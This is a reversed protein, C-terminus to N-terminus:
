SPSDSRILAAMADVESSQENLVHKALSHIYPNGSPGDLLSRSMTIAGRHHEIMLRLYVNPAADRSAHDLETLQAPSLMGHAPGGASPSPENWASLWDTTEDIERQQDHIIYDAILRVREPVGGKALLTRSMAVAQEHHDVMMQAYHVDIGSPTTETQAAAAQPAPHDGLRLVFVTAAALALVASAALRRVIM